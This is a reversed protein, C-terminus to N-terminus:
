NTEISKSVILYQVEEEILQNNDYLKFVLKYTGSTLENRLNFKFTTDGNINASLMREHPYITTYGSLDASDLSNKFLNSFNIETYSNSDVADIDRKFVDIRVNPNQLVSHYTLTYTNFKDGNQNLGTEGNVVKCYDDTEVVIANDDGVVTIVYEKIASKSLSSNHVGDASAFLVFKVRYVGPPLMKDAVVSVEKELNSVKGALKIRYVGDGDAFYSRNDIKVVTGTLLSSSVQNNSSDYFYVNLGMSSSEYNTDIIVERNETQDYAVNTGFNFTNPINYYLYNSIGDINEELVVNSTDYLSFQMLNQRIGLVSVVARDENNRLEFLIANNLHVGTTTTESFDFIFIFEEISRKYTSSYYRNNAAFDDYHNTASTSGMKIFDSLRYSVENHVRLENVAANYKTTDVTYYYYQPNNYDYGYDIMTIRTGVPLVFNSTLVHYNSSNRGYFEEITDSIAFLSYYATFQSQNTIKVDTVSPMEYKKDYTISADYSNGDDYNRAVLEVTVTIYKIEYEIPNIPELAQLTVIVTGLDANLMINKAHYLYFMLSPAVAQSDTLYSMTGVTRGNGESLFKTTGYSTWERTESKVSLGLIENAEQASNTVRPVDNSDVLRVSQALGESNFGVVNFITNGKSFDLLSLNYTGLSSYKTATLHVTYNVANMGVIWRYYNTDTPSPEIYETIISTYDDDLVNTYFGDKTIDHSLAHLGLVYSGGIIADGADAADGYNFQSGYLGYAFSGSAYSNYMGFFTMGTVKGYATATENTTINLNRNPLMYIRNDVNKTVTKTDDNIDVVAPVLTGNVDVGSYFEKLMNANRKLLLTTDNKIILSDIQNFSYLIDSYENTRDEIGELEMYSNDITLLNTRQFSINKSPNSKEGLKKVYIESTGQSSSANGSGFISGSLKFLRGSDLYGTGDIKIDISGIVSKFSFDYEERGDANSEGGGFVTGDVIVNGMLLTSDNVANYGINTVTAGHVVSTNAGGYVNGFVHAGVINVTATSTGVGSVGTTAANGGGFVCGSHPAVSSNSGITTAGDITVNTNGSVTASSGNGGAYLSGRITTNTIYVETNGTVSGENGGGYVNAAMTSDDIDLFTNGNVGAMNGGGYITSIDANKIVVHTNNVPALNGGGYVSNITGYNILVNTDGTLGGENNGGYVNTVNINNDPVVVEFVPNLLTSNIFFDSVSTNTLIAFEFSYSGGNAALVYPGNADWRNTDDFVAVGNVIDFTTGSWNSYLATDTPMNLQVRWGSIVDSSSNSITFRIPVYTAYQNSQWTSVEPSAELSIIVPNSSGVLSGITVNSATLNGSKNSGGYVNTVTGNIVDVHSTNLGAENGGGYVNTINGGNITINSITSSAKDGGGFVDGIRGSNIEVNSTATTGGANNGGYVSTLSESNIVLNSTTVAGLENSGGFIKLGTTGNLTINTTTCDAKQGGGFVNKVNLRGINVKSSGTNAQKGGGYIDGNITGGSVTVNSKNTVGGVNNGGFINGVTGSTVTVNSTSVTGSSNSGGFLNTVTSGQLYINTTTQGTNNGGGFADGIIGGNLYVYDTGNPSGSADNGGYVYGINGNNVTVVVNGMVYPTFTASGKGGGFVAGTVIGNNVTVNTNYSSVTANRTNGNVSGYASGGYVNGSITLPLPNATRGINVTSNRMVYTGPNNDNTYGGEGGGYVDKSIEGGYVNVNTNGYVTGKTKSGGYVSGLVKGGTMDINITSVVSSSGSGNNNGGGYVSGNVTGGLIQIKTNTTSSNNIGVSGYNGGGYVNSKVVAGRDIIVNSDVATGITSYNANGNGIGFVSGLEEGYKTSGNKIVTDDGVVADGGIYVLTSGSLTGRSNNADSGSYGNSGGFVAYNVTGGTVGVIRNGYTETRGAGGIIFDVSGGKVFAFIDNITSRSSDTLPGGLLNYIYGGEVLASRTAYHTGGNLGGIYIGSTYDNKSTGFSGSKVNTFLAIDTASSGRINGGWAGAATNYVQLETNNKRVRDYDCGYIGTGSVYVNSSNGSGNTLSLNNYIGEEIILKYRKVNGDSGIAGNSGGFVAAANRTNNYQIIGRGIKLNNFNGYIYSASGTNSTPDTSASAGTNTRLTIMEIRLDNQASITINRINYTKNYNNGNNVCTLTFPKTTSFATTSDNTLVAINTDRTIMQAYVESAISLNVNGNDDCYPILEFAGCGASKNCLGSSIYSGDATYYGEMSSGNRITLARYYGGVPIGVNLPNLNADAVYTFGVETEVMRNNVLDYYTVSPNYTGNSPHGYYECGGISYCRGSLTGGTNNRAGNPYNSFFGVNSIVYLNSVSNYALRAGRIKLGGNDFTNFANNWANNNNGTTTAINGNIWSANFVVSVPTNVNSVPVKAYYTHIDKDYRIKVGRYNSVWGNFVKNDPRDAFPHDILEIDVYGNEVKYYKYYNFKSVQETLSVYGILSNDYLDMGNYQIYVKALNSDNYINQNNGSPLIGNGSWTYNLGMYYNYDSELDNVYVTDGVIGSDHLAISDNGFAFPMAVPLDFNTIKYLKIIGNEYNWFYDYSDVNEDLYDLIYDGSIDEGDVNFSLSNGDRSGVYLSNITSNNSSNGINNVEELLLSNTTIVTYINTINSNLTSVVKNVGNIYDSSLNYDLLINNIESNEAVIGALGGIKSGSVETSNNLNIYSSVVSINKLNSLSNIKGAVNGAFIVESVSSPNISINEINVNKIDAGDVIAFLGYYSVEDIVSSTSKINRITYGNGDFHGNFLKEEEGISDFNHNGMDIDNSLVYYKDSYTSSNLGEIVSKFYNLESANSIVYPNDLSGNGSSFSSSLSEGDWIEIDGDALTFYNVLISFVGFSAIVLFLACFSRFVLKKKTVNKITLKLGEM